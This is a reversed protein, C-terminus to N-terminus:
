TINLHPFKEYLPKEQLFESLKLYSDDDSLDIELFNTRNKFFHRVADNHNEYNKILLQENYIDDEPTKWVARNAEWMFGKYRYNANILDEKTPVRKGESFLKSHFKVISKYWIQSDRVTLIYKADPFHHHVILWTFPWSFPVDQFADATKCYKIIPDWDANAYNRTLMEATPQNGMKYGFDILAKELSTTGTKNRGICFIKPKNKFFM